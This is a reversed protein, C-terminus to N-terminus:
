EELFSAVEQWWEEAPAAPWTNHGAAAFVWKRKRAKLSDYLEQGQEEPILEDQAAVLVAVPNQYGRLNAINDYRDRLLWRLPLFWYVSQAVDTLSSFPTILALGAVPITGDSALATAVGSGLSEGWLYIPGEFAQQAAQVTVRADAVLARESPQGQRAGYGPYEALIVRFGLPELAALYHLRNLASGGNGHFVIIIGRSGSPYRSVLGRYGEDPTPWLSLARQDAAGILDTVSYRHPYYIFRDQLLYIAAAIIAMSLLIWLFLAIYSWM